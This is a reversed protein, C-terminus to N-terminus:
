RNYTLSSTLPSVQVCVISIIDGINTHRIMDLTVGKRQHTNHIFSYNNHTPVKGQSHATSSFMLVLLLMLFIIKQPQMFM